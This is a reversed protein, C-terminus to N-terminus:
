PLLIRSCRQCQVVEGAAERVRRVHSIPLTARCGGCGDGEVRAVVRGALRPMGRLKEYAGLWPTPLEKAVGDRAETLKALEADIAAEASAIAARLEAEATERAAQRAEIEQLAAEAAEDREMVALEEAELAAQRRQLDQFEAQLGSLEKSSTTRGSYLDHEVETARAALAAVEGELRHEERGLAVRETLTSERGEGLAALEACCEALALREPLGSRKAHLADAEGDLRQLELLSRSPDM